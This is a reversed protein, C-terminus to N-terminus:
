WLLMVRFANSRADRSHLPLFSLLIRLSPRVPHLCIFCVSNLCTQPGRNKMASCPLPHMGPHMGTHMCLVLLFCLRVLAAGAGWVVGVSAAPHGLGLHGVWLQAPHACVPQELSCSLLSLLGRPQGFPVVLLSQAMWPLPPLVGPFSGGNKTCQLAQLRPSQGKEANNRVDLRLPFTPPSCLPLLSPVM